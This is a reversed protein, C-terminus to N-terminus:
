GEQIENKAIRLVDERTMEKLAKFIEEAPVKLKESLRESFEELNKNTM